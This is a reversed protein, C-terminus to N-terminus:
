PNRDCFPDFWEEGFNDSVRFGVFPQLIPWDANPVFWSRDNQELLYTGYYWIDNYMLQACPYRGYKGAIKENGNHSVREGVVDVHLNLPDSGVIRGSWPNPSGTGQGNVSGDTFCSYITGDSAYAPYWTDANTYSAYRGTFSIGGFTKSFPLPCDKPLRNNGWSTWNYTESIQQLSRDKQACLIGPCTLLLCILIKKMM